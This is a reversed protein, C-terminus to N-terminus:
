NSSTVFFGWSQGLCHCDLRRHCNSGVTARTILSPVTTCQDGITLLMSTDHTFDNSVFSELQSCRPCLNYTYHDGVNSSLNFRMALWSNILSICFWNSLTCVCVYLSILAPCTAQYFLCLYLYLYLFLCM